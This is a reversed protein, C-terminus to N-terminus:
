DKKFEEKSLALFVIALIGLVTSTIVTAISGALALEWNKRQIAFIGGILSLTSIAAAILASFAILGPVFNPIDRTGPINLAGSTVIVGIIFIIVLVFIGSAAVINLIGAVLPKWTKQIPHTDVEM